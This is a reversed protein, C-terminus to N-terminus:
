NTVLQDTGGTLGLQRELDVPSLLDAGIISKTFGPCYQEIVTYGCVTWHVSM